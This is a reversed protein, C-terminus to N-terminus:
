KAGKKLSKLDRAEYHFAHANNYEIKREVSTDRWERKLLNELDRRPYQNKLLDKAAGAEAYKFKGQELLERTFNVIGDGDIIASEGIFIHTIKGVDKYFNRQKKLRKIAGTFTNCDMTLRIDFDLEGTMVVTGEKTVRSWATVVTQSTYPAIIVEIERSRQVERSNGSESERQHEGGVDASVALEASVGGTADSPKYGVSFQVGLHWNYTDSKLERVTESTTVQRVIKVTVPSATPNIFHDEQMAVQQPNGVQTLAGLTAKGNIYKAPGFHLRTRTGWWKGAEFVQAHWAATFPKTSNSERIWRMRDKNIQSGPTRRPDFAINGGIYFIPRTLFNCIGEQTEHIITAEDKNEALQTLISPM